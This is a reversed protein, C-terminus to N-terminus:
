PNLKPDSSLWAGPKIQEMMYFFDLISTNHSVGKTSWTAHTLYTNYNAGFDTYAGSTGAGIVWIGSSNKMTRINLKSYDIDGAQDANTCDVGVWRGEDPLWVWDFIHNEVSDGDAVFYYGAANCLNEFAASYHNCVGVYVNNDAWIKSVSECAKDSPFDVLAVNDPIEFAKRDSQPVASAGSKNYLLKQTVVWGLYQVKEADCSLKDMEALISSAYEKTAERALAADSNTDYEVSMVAMNKQGFKGVTRLKINYGFNTGYRYTGLGQALYTEDSKTSSETLPYRYYANLRNGDNLQTVGGSDKTIIKRDLMLQALANLTTNTEGFYLKTYDYNGWADRMTYSVPTDSVKGSDGGYWAPSTKTFTHKYADNRVAGAAIAAEDVYKFNADLYISSQGYKNVDFQCWFDVISAIDRVKFYNNYDIMVPQVNSQVKVDDVYIDMTSVTALKTETAPGPATWPDLYYRDTYIRMANPEAESWVVDFDLFYAIDRLKMYNSYYGNAQQISYIPVQSSIEEAASMEPRAGFAKTSINDIFTPIAELTSTLDTASAPVCSLIMIAALLMALLRKRM